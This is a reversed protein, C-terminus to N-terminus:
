MAGMLKSVTELIMLASSGIVIGAKKISRGALKLKSVSKEQRSYEPTHPEEVSSHTVDRGIFQGSMDYATSPHKTNFIDYNVTAKVSNSYNM